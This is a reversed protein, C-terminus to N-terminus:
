DEGGNGFGSSFDITPAALEGVLVTDGAVLGSLIETFEDDRLGITVERSEIIPQGEEEGVVLNVSYTGARRDATVAANPVLLVGEKEATILRADATM